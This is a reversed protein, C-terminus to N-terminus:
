ESISERESKDVFEKVAETMVKESLLNLQNQKLQQTLLVSVDLGDEAGQDGADSELLSSSGGRKRGSLFPPLSPFPLSPALCSIFCLSFADM